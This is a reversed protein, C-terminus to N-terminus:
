NINDILEQIRKKSFEWGIPIQDTQGKAVGSNWTHKVRSITNGQGGRSKKMHEGIEEPTALYVKPSQGKELDVGKLQVLSVM